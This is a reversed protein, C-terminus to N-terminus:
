IHIAPQAERGVEVAEVLGVLDARRDAGLVQAQGDDAVAGGGVVVPARRDLHRRAVRVMETVADVVTPNAVGICVARMPEEGMLIAELAQAPTDPGLDVVLYGGGRLIDGAM